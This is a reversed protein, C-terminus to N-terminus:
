DFEKLDIDPWSDPDNVDVGNAELCEVIDQQFAYFMMASWNIDDGQMPPPEGTQETYAGENDSCLLGVKAKFTYIVRQDGDCTEHLTDSFESVDGAKMEKALEKATDRVDQYYHARMINFAADVDADTLQKPKKRAAM